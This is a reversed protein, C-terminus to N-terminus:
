EDGDREAGAGCVVLVCGVMAVMAVLRLGDRGRVVRWWRDGLVVVPQGGNTSASLWRCGSVVM